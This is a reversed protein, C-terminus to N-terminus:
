PQRLQLRLRRTAGEMLESVKLGASFRGNARPM